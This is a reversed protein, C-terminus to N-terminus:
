FEAGGSLNNCAVLWPRLLGDMAAHFGCDHQAVARLQAEFGVACVNPKILGAAISASLM